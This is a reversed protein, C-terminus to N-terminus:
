PDPSRGLQACVVASRLLPTHFDMESVAGVGSKFDVKVRFRHRPSGGSSRWIHRATFHVNRISPDPRTGKGDPRSRRSDAHATRSVSVSSAGANFGALEATELAEIINALYSLTAARAEATLESLREIESREFAGSKRFVRLARATEEFGADIMALHEYMQRRQRGTWRM